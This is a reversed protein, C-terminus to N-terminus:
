ATVAAAEVEEAISDLSFAVCKCDPWECPIVSSEWHRRKLSDVLEQVDM